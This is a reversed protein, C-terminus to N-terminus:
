GGPARPPVSQQLEQALEPHLTVLTQRLQHIADRFLAFTLADHRDSSPNLQGARRFVDNYAQFIRRKDDFSLKQEEQLRYAFGFLALTEKRLADIKTGWTDQNQDEDM